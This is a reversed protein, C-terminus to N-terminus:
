LEIKEDIFFINGKGVLYLSLVIIIVYLTKLGKLIFYDNPWNIFWDCISVM